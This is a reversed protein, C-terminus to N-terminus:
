AMSRLVPARTVVGRTFLLQLYSPYGAQLVSSRGAGRHRLGSGLPSVRLWWVRGNLLSMLSLVTRSQRSGACQGSNRYLLIVEM